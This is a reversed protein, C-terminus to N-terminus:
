RVSLPRYQGCLRAAINSFAAKEKGPLLPKGALAAAQLEESYPVVGQLMIGTGDLVEDLDEIAGKLKKPVRNIILKQNEVGNQLLVRSLQACDRVSVPDPTVVALTLDAAACSQRVMNGLGGPLDVLTYDYCRRCLQLFGLWQQANPVFDPDNSGSLLWLGMKGVPVAAESIRCRQQLVEACDYLSRQAVGLLLDLSRLGFDAEVVLTSKGQESLARALFATVTSKGTGGKGSAIAVVKGM